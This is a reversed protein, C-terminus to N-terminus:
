AMSSSGAMAAYSLGFPRQCVRRPEIELKELHSRVAEGVIPACALCAEIGVLSEDLGLILTATSQASLSMTYAIYEPPPDSPKFRVVTCQPSTELILIGSDPRSIVRDGEGRTRALDLLENLDGSSVGPTGEPGRYLVTLDGIFSSTVLLCHGVDVRSAILERLSTGFGEAGLSAFLKAIEHIGFLIM